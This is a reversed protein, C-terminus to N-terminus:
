GPSTVTLLCGASYVSQNDRFWEFSVGEEGHHQSIVALVLNGEEMGWVEHPQHLILYPDPNIAAASCPFEYVLPSPGERVFINGGKYIESVVYGLRLPDCISPDTPQGDEDFSSLIIESRSSATIRSCKNTFPSVTTKLYSINLPEQSAMVEGNIVPYLHPDEVDQKAQEVNLPSMTNGEDRMAEPENSAEPQKSHQSAATPPRQTARSRDKFTTSLYWRLIGCKTRDYMDGVTDEKKTANLSFDCLDCDVDELRIGRRSIGDPFFLKKAEEIIVDTNAEKRIEIKRTGGGTQKRVQIGEHMWGIEIFRQPKTAIKNGRMVGSRSKDAPPDMGEDLPADMGSDAAKNNTRKVKRRLEALLNQRKVDSAHSTSPKNARTPSEGGQGQFM